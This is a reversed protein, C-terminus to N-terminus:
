YDEDWVEELYGCNACAVDCGPPTELLSGCSPCDCCGGHGDHIRGAGDIQLSRRCGPCRTVGAEDTEHVCACFPCKVVILDEADLEGEENVAFLPDCEAGGDDLLEGDEDVSFEWGCGPCEVEVLSDVGALRQATAPEDPASVIFDQSCVPCVVDLTTLDM